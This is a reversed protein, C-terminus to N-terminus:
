VVMVIYTKVSKSSSIKFLNEKWYLHLGPIKMPTVHMLVCICTYATHESESFYPKGHCAVKLYYIGSVYKLFFVLLSNFLFNGCIVLFPFSLSSDNISLCDNSVQARHSHFFQRKHLLM